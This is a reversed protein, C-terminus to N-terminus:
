EVQNVGTQDSFEGVYTYMYVYIETELPERDFEITPDLFLPPSPSLHCPRRIALGERKLQGFQKVIWGPSM